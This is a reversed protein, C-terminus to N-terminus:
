YFRGEGYAEGRGKHKGKEATEGKRELREEGDRTEGDKEGRREEDEM